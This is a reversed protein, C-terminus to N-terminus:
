DSSEGLHSLRVLQLTVRRGEEQRGMRNASSDNVQDRLNFLRSYDKKGYRGAWVAYIGNSTGFSTLTVMNLTVLHFFEIFFLEERWQEVWIGYIVPNQKQNSKLILVQDSYKM